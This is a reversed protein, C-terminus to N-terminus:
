AIIIFTVKIKIFKNLYVVLGGVVAVAVAATHWDAVDVVTTPATNLEAAAAADVGVADAM